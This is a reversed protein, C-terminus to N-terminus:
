MTGAPLLLINSSGPVACWAAAIRKKIEEAGLTITGVFEAHTRAGRYNPQRMPEKLFRGLLRSDLDYPFTGHHLLANRTRRQANGSVKREDLALDSAGRLAVGEVGLAGAIKGLIIVVSRRVDRLEPRRVLSLALAFNLCGPGLLVSGGGSARRVVPVGARECARVDVEDQIRGSRGLAVFWEPSEWFRLTEVGSDEVADLLAEDLALNEQPTRMSVDLLRIM